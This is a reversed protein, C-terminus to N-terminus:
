PGDPSPRTVIWIGVDHTVGGDTSGSGVMGIAAGTLDLLKQKVLRSIGANPLRKVGTWEMAATFVRRQQRSLQGAEAVRWSAGAEQLAARTAAVEKIAGGAGVLGVGDLIYMARKYSRDRDLSVNIDDRGRVVNGFRYFSVGCQAASATAGGWLLAAAPLSLGGTEPAAAVAGAVGIGAVVAGTCSVGMGWLEAWFHGNSDSFASTTATPNRHDPIQFVVDAAGGRLPPRLRRGQGDDTLIVGMGATQPVADVIRLLVTANEM